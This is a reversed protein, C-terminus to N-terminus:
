GITRGPKRKWAASLQHWRQANEPDNRTSTYSARMIALIVGLLAGGILGALTIIARSPKSKREAPIAPDLLQISSSDKAEDIKALEFQKALLEFITEYYKVNRASRVYEVGVEPIKGTPVMFNGSGSANSLELKALQSQMGRLEEQARLTNPNQGTAYTRMAALQVEKAAIASKLQAASSIIAGVQAAPQIMGTKEQTTRLTIEANALQDKAEKLQKEYFARRQSAETIAMTQTLKILEDAYANALDAAFKPDKDTVSISIFGDKKGSTIESITALLKRTGDMTEQEYRAKLNFRKILNDAITRSELLGVYLDSPNKVGAIGGAAGALSGLQGLVASVGSSQQQPPMLRATSSFIPTMLLSIALAVSGTFLPTGIVLRKHQALVVMLDLLHAKEPAQTNGVLQESM